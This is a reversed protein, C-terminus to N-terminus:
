YWDQPEWLFFAMGRQAHTPLPEFIKFEVTPCIPGTCFFAVRSTILKLMWKVTAERVGSQSAEPYHDRDADKL